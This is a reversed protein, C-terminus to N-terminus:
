EPEKRARVSGTEISIGESQRRVKLSRMNSLRLANNFCIYEDQYIIHLGTKLCRELMNSEVKTIMPGM